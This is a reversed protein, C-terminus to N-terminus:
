SNAQNRELFWAELAYDLRLQKHRNAYIKVLKEYLESNKQPSLSAFFPRLTELTSLTGLTSFDEAEQSIQGGKRQSSQTITQWIAQQLSVFLVNFLLSATSPDKLMKELSPQPKKLQLLTVLQNVLTTVEVWYDKHYTTLAELPSSFSLTYLLEVEELPEELLANLWLLATKKKPTPVKYHQVRSLITPLLGQAHGTTLLIFLLYPPPEELLKLLSNAANLNMREAGHIVVVKRIKHENLEGFKIGEPNIGESDMDEPSIGDPNMTFTSTDALSASKKVALTGDTEAFKHLARIADVKIESKGEGLIVLDPHWGKLFLQCSQCEGCASQSQLFTSETEKPYLPNQCLLVQALTFGVLVQGSGREGSFLLAQPSAQPSAQSLRQSLFRAIVEQYPSHLWGAKLFSDPYTTLLKLFPRREQSSSPIKAM